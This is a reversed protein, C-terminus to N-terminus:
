FLRNEREGSSFWLNGSKQYSTVWFLSFSGSSGTEISSTLPARLSGCIILPDCFSWKVFCFGNM